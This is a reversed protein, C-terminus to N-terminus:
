TGMAICIKLQNDNYTDRETALFKEFTGSKKEKRLAKYIAEEMGVSGDLYVKSTSSATGRISDTV